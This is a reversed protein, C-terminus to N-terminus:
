NNQLMQGVSSVLVKDLCRPVELCIRREWLKHRSCCALVVAMHIHVQKCHKNSEWGSVNTGFRCCCGRATVHWHAAFDFLGCVRLSVQEKKM